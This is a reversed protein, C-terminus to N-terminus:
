TPSSGSKNVYENSNGCAVSEAVFDKGQEELNQNFLSQEGETNHSLGINHFEDENDSDSLYHKHQKKLKTHFIIDDESESNNCDVNTEQIINKSESTDIEQKDATNSHLNNVTCATPEMDTDM